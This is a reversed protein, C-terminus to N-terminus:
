ERLLKSSRPTRIRRVQMMARRLRTRSERFGRAKEQNKSIAPAVCALSQLKARLLRIDRDRSETLNRAKWKMWREEEEEIEIKILEEKEIMRAKSDKM